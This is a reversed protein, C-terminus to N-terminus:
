ACERLTRYPRGYINQFQNALHRRTEYRGRNTFASSALASKWYDQAVRKELIRRVKKYTANDHIYIEGLRRGNKFNIRQSAYATTRGKIYRSECLLQNSTQDM